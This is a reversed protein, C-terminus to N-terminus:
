GSPLILTSLEILRHGIEPAINGGIERVIGIHLKPKDDRQEVPKAVLL